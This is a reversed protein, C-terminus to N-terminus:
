PAAGPTGTGGTVGAAGATGYPVCPPCPSTIGACIRGASFDVPVTQKRSLGCTRIVNNDVADIHRFLTGFGIIERIYGDFVLGLIALYCLWISIRHFWRRKM